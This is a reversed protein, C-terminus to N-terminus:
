KAPGEWSAQSKPKKVEEDGIKMRKGQDPQSPSPGRKRRVIRWKEDRLIISIWLEIQTNEIDSQISISVTKM